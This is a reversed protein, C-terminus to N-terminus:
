LSGYLVSPSFSLDFIQKDEKALDSLCELRAAKLRLTHKSDTTDM